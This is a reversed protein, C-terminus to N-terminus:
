ANARSAPSRTDGDGLDRVSAASAMAPGEEPLDGLAVLLGRLATSAQEVSDGHDVRMRARQAPVVDRGARRIVGAGAETLRVWSSRADASNIERVVLGRGELRRLTTSTGGSTTLTRRAIASPTLRYPDGAVLLVSLIDFELRSLRHRRLRTGLVDDLLGNLRIVRAILQLESESGGAAGPNEQAWRRAFEDVYDPAIM